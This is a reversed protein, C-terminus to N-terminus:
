ALINLKVSDKNEVLLDCQVHEDFVIVCAQMGVFYGTFSNLFWHIQIGADLYSLGSEHHSKM